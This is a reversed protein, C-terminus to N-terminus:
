LNGEWVEKNQKRKMGYEKEEEKETEVIKTTPIGDGPKIKQANTGEVTVLFDNIVEIVEKAVRAEFEVKDVVENALQNILEKVM